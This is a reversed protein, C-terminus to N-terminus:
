FFNTKQIRRQFSGRLTVHLLVTSRNGKEKMEVRSEKNSYFRVLHSIGSNMGQSTHSLPNLVLSRVLPDGNQSGTLARAQTAPWTGLLPCILPLQVNINRERM